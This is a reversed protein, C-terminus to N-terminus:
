SKALERSAKTLHKVTINYDGAELRIHHAKSLVDAHTFGDPPEFKYCALELLQGLPERFYISDMFGRDVEGSSAFGAQKLRDVAATYAERSVIFALHHLTGIGMPNPSRDVPRDAPLNANPVM